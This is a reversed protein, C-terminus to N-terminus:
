AVDAATCSGTGLGDTASYKFTQVRGDANVVDICWHAADVFNSSGLAVNSSSPGLDSGALVYHGAALALTPASTHDVYYTAVEKGLTTADSKAAADHAKERQVLFVPLAIAALVGIVLMTVLLEVLTFGTDRPDNRDETM